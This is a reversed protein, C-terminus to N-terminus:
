EHSPEKQNEIERIWKEAIYYAAPCVMVNKANMSPRKFYDFDDTHPFQRCADPRVEYVQCTNDPNLFHCPVKNFSLEGNVDQLVYRKEFEKASLGLFKSLRQIDNRNVIAPTTKCCNACQLCDTKQFAEAHFNKIKDSYQRSRQSKFFQLYYRLSSPQISKWATLFDKGNM